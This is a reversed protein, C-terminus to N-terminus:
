MYGIATSFYMYVHVHLRVPAHVSLLCAVIFHLFQLDIKVVRGQTHIYMYRRVSFKYKVDFAVNKVIGKREELRLIITWSKM